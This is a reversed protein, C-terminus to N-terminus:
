INEMHQLIHWLHKNTKHVFLCRFRRGPYCIKAFFAHLLITYIKDHILHMMKTISLNCFNNTFEADAYIIRTYFYSVYQINEVLM